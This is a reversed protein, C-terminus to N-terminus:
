FLSRSPAGYAVPMESILRASERTSLAVQRLSHLDSFAENQSMKVILFMGQLVDRLAAFNVGQNKNVRSLKGRLAWFKLFFM